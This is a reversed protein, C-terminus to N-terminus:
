WYYDQVFTYISPIFNSCWSRPKQTSRHGHCYERYAILQPWAAGAAVFLGALITFVLKRFHLLRRPSRVFFSGDQIADYAFLVGSLLGNSRLTTAVGIALGSLLLSLDRKLFQKEVHYLSSKSFFYFGLFQFCSFCSESYPASLFLGAPSIIHLAAACFAMPDVRGFGRLTSKSLAHLTWVSCLHSLHAVAVGAWAEASSEGASGTAKLDARMLSASHLVACGVNRVCPWSAPLVGVLRGNKSWLMDERRSRPSTSPMGASSSPLSQTSTLYFSRQRLIM